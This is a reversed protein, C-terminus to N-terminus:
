QQCQGAPQHPLAVAGQIKGQQVLPRLLQRKASVDPQRAHHAKAQQGPDDRQVAPHRLGMGIGRSRRRRQEGGHHHLNPQEANKRQRKRAPLRRQPPAHHQQQRTHHGCKDAPQVRQHFVVNLTQQRIVGQLIDANNQETKARAYRAQRQVLRRQNGGPKDTTQIVEDVMAQKFARQEEARTADPETGAM